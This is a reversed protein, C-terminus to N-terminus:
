DKKDEVEEKKQKALDEANAMLGLHNEYPEIQPIIENGNYSIVTIGTNAYALIPAAVSLMMCVILCWAVSKITKM